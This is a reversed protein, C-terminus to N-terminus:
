KYDTPERYYLSTSWTITDTYCSRCYLYSTHPKYLHKYDDQLITITLLLLLLLKLSYFKKTARDKLFVMRRLRPSHHHM